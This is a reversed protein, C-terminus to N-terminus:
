KIRLEKGTLEYGNQLLHVHGVPFQTHYLVGGMDKYGIYFAIGTIVNQPGMPYAKKIVCVNDKVWMDRKGQREFEFRDLWDETLVIPRVDDEVVTLLGAGDFLGVLWKDTYREDELPAPPNVETVRMPMGNYQVFHGYHLGKAEM